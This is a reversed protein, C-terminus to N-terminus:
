PQVTLCLVDFWAHQGGSAARALGLVGFGLVLLGCAARVGRQQLYQRLKAGAMGMALLMPLTGLGFAGMVLAGDLASGSLMATLLMSYVMGCPVWGWVGGLALAKLPTDMPVLPKILPQVRRWLIGGAAEVRALGRWADMLYLGMAVLMLNAVWYAALQVSAMQLLRAVSGAIGGAIAGALMYSGIRGTNYALVHVIEGANAGAWTMAAAGGTDVQAITIVRARVPTASPGGASFAGVIGGCMGACHVSGALGAILIPLLNM